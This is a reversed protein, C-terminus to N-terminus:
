MAKNKSIVLKIAIGKIWYFQRSFTSEIWFILKNRFKALDKPRFIKVQKVQDYPTKLLRSQFQLFGLSQPIFHCTISSRSSIKSSSDLSGHITKSNWLLVDGAELKPARIEMGNRQIISVISKIYVDHNDIVNNEKSQLGMDILHSKPCVFFRGADAAIDELAIWGAVMSGVKESDLYYTDQHEWTASNGEFYMSQVLKVDDGVLQKLAVSLDFDSFVKEVVLNRLKSFFRPNLSQLNLIPNMVWGQENFKNTELKSTAQRYIKGDHLKVSSDWAERVEDIVKTSFVHKFIVYGNESYYKEADKVDEIPFKVSPDEESTEPVNVPLGAPTNQSIM